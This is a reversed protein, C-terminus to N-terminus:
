CRGSSGIARSRSSCCPSPPPGRGRVCSGSSRREAPVPRPRHPRRLGPHRPSRRRDRGRPRAPVPALRRRRDHALLPGAGAPPPLRRHLHLADGAAPHAPAPRGLAEAARRAARPRRPRPVAGLHLHLVRHSRQPRRRHRSGLEPHLGLRAGGRACPPRPQHRRARRLPRQGPAPPPLRRSRGPPQLRGHWPRRLHRRPPPRRARRGRRGVGRQRRPLRPRPRRHPRRSRGGRPRPALRQRLRRHAVALGLTTMAIDRSRTTLTRLSPRSGWERARAQPSPGRRGGGATRATGRPRGLRPRGLAGPQEIGAHRGDPPGAGLRRDVLHRGLGLDALRHEVGLEAVLVADALRDRHLERLARLADEHLRKRGAAAQLHGDRQAEAHVPEDVDDGVFRLDVPEDDAADAAVVSTQEVVREHSGQLRAELQHRPHQRGAASGSRSRTIAWPVNPNM